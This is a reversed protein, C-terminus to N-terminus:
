DGPWTVRRLTLGDAAMNIRANSSPLTDCSCCSCVLQWSWHGGELHSWGSGYKSQDYCPSWRRTAVIWSRNGMSESITLSWGLLPDGPPQLLVTCLVAVCLCYVVGTSLGPVLYSTSTQATVLMPLPCLTVLVAVVYWNGPGTVERWTLGDV